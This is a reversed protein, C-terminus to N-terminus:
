IFMQQLLGKKLKQLSELKRQQLTITSDLKDLFLGIRKQEELSPFMAEISSFTSYQVRQKEKLTGTANNKYLMIASPSKMWTKMFFLDFESNVSLIVYYGSVAVSKGLNNFGIAGLTMNMPNYVVEGTKVEKFKDESETLFERNYRDTKQTLGEQVTLSYLEINHEKPNVFNNQQEFLDGLKRQKWAHKNKNHNEGVKLKKYNQHM